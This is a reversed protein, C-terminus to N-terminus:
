WFTFFSDTSSITLKWVASVHWANTAQLPPMLPGVLGVWWTIYCM